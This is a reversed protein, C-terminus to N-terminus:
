QVSLAFSGSVTEPDQKGSDLFLLQLEAFLDPTCPTVGGPSPAQPATPKKDMASVGEGESLM